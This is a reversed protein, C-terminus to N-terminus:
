KRSIAPTEVTMSLAMSAWATGASSIWQDHAYPFGSDFYPQAWISRTKVHWSGDAAQTRLLYEIGKRYIPGDVPTKGAASLAYLAQGTAYADSGMSPLQNWGGDERQTAALARAARDIAAPAANAWALGLLHFTREQTTAPQAAALWAAARTLDADTEARDPPPTYHRLSYIALATAQLDGANMPPRHGEPAKWYGEPEQMAKLYHIVADSYEDSLVRNTGRDFMEWGMSPISAAILDMTRDPSEGNMTETLQPIEKPAPIGHDRALAAAASPLDQSHCSNCGSIRIFNYSPKEYLAVAKRVADSASRTVVSAPPLPAVGGRERQEPAVGLLRAVETDGRKAALQRATEGDGMYKTDAGKALLMKVIGAPAAESAAAYLLPSYGRDDQINVMAGRDLLLKVSEEVGATAANALASENKKTVANPDAGLELLLRVAQSNRSAAAGLLATAGAGNRANVDAKKAILLRMAVVDGRGAATMLPTQGNATALNPDAGKELLLKVISDGAAASAANYLPTRGDVQKANITAGHELLLRVKTDSPIAWHLPTSARRNKANADAGHDLLVKMVAISGFGAAHHLPTSGTQDQANILAPNQKLLEGVRDPTGTRVARILAALRPDLPKPPADPQIEMRFDAGQDIWARLLDIEAASLPGTPPMQLGGDGNVVRRILKSEAGKGPIIVPGYDGGRMANQRKDLRLGSQQVDPGHCGYCRQALLPQVQKEFDVTPQAAALGEAALLPAFMALLAFTLRM